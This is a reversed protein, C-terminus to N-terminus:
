PNSTPRAPGTSARVVFETPLVVRRQAPDEPPDLLLQGAIRGRELPDQRITTLGGVEAEPLDDFGIVSVDRGPWLGRMALADLIGLAILDTLGVVATPRPARDLVLAAAAAGVERSNTTTHILTLEPLDVGVEALATAYGRLRDRVMSDEIDDLDSISRLVPANAHEPAYWHGIIAIRRHGLAALHTGAAYTAAAEDMGVYRDDPHAEPLAQTSVTPLGRARVAPLAPHWEAICYVCFGDVVAQQVARTASATDRLSLPVLLLGADHVEASETLGRLFQVAYPDTFAYSLNATFLVGIAGVNGVRLSRAAPDPGAYGLQRATTLIRERLEPSLQNPRSYANSVTSRSVGVAEAVTQLTPRM